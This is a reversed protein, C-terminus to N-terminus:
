CFLSLFSFSFNINETNFYYTVSQSDVVMM